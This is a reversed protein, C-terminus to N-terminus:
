ISSGLFRRRPFSYCFEELASYALGVFLESNLTGLSCHTQLLLSHSNSQWFTIILFAVSEDQIQSFSCLQGLCSPSGNHLGPALARGEGMGHQWVSYLPGFCCPPPVAGSSRLLEPPASRRVKVAHKINDYYGLHRHKMHKAEGRRAQMYTSTKIIYLMHTVDSFLDGFDQTPIM